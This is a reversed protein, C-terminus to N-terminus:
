PWFFFIKPIHYLGDKKSQSAKQMPQALQHSLPPKHNNPFIEGFLLEGLLGAIEVLIIAHRMFCVYQSKYIREYDNNGSTNRTLRTHGTVIKELDVSTDDTIKSNTNCLPSGLSEDQDDGVRNVRSDRDDRLDELLV